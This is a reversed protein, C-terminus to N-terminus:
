RMEMGESDSMVGLYYVDVCGSLQHWIASEGRESCTWSVRQGIQVDNLSVSLELM